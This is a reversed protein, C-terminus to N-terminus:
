ILFKFLYVVTAIIGVWTFLLFAMVGGVLAMQKLAEKM